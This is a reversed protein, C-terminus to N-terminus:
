AAHLRDRAAARGDNQKGQEHITLADEAYTAAAATADRANFAKTFSALLAAIADADDAHGRSPAAVNARGAAPAAAPPNRKAKASEQAGLAPCIGILVVGFWLFFPRM